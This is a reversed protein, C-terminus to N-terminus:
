VPTQPLSKTPKWEGTQQLALVRSTARNKLLQRRYFDQDIGALSTEAFPIELGQRIRFKSWREYLVFVSSFHGDYFHNLLVKEQAYPNNCTLFFRFAFMRDVQNMTLIKNDIIMLLKEFFGVYTLLQGIELSTSPSEGRSREILFQYAQHQGTLYEELSNIFEAAKFRDSQRLQLALLLISITSVAFALVGLLEAIPM